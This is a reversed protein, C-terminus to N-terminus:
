ILYFLNFFESKHNLTIEEKLLEQLVQWRSLNKIVIEDHKYFAKEDFNM